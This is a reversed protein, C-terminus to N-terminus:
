VRPPDMIRSILPLIDELQWREEPTLAEIRAALAATAGNQRSYTERCFFIIRKV